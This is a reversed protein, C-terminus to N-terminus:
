RMINLLDTPNHLIYEAASFDNTPIAGWGANAFDIGAAHAAKMDFLSDGIYIFDQKKYDNFYNNMAYELPDANPKHKATDDSYVVKKIANIKPFHKMEDIFVSKKKSTVIGYKIGLATLGNFMDDIGPYEEILDYEHTIKENFVKVTEEPDTAGLEKVMALAPIGMLKVVDQPEIQKGDEKLAATMAAVSAADTKLLTNDLDFLAVKYKM